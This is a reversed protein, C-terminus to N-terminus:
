SKEHGVVRVKVIRITEGDVHAVLWVAGRHLGDQVIGLVQTLVAELDKGIVVRVEEVLLLM